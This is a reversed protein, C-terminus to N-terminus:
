PAPWLVAPPRCSRSSSPPRSSWPSPQASAPVCNPWRAPRVRSVTGPPVGLAAATEAESMDLLYRHVVADREPPSLERVAEVLLERHGALLAHEVSRDPGAETHAAAVVAARATLDDRRRAARHLNRTENAVISLLWARIPSDGRYDGIRRYAKVFAEQVVDDTDNGAGLLTATRRAAALHRGFLTDFAGRDGDRAALVLENDELADEAM